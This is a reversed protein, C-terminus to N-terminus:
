FSTYVFLQRIKVIYDILVIHFVWFDFDLDL